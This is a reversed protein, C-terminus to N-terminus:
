GGVCNEDNNIICSACKLVNTKNDAAISVILKIIVFVFFVIVASILRKIFIQQGKRIEDEKSAIVAKVFDISGFVVLLIPVLIPLIKPMGTILNDGCSVVGDKDYNKVTNTGGILNKNVQNEQCKKDDLNDLFSVNGYEGICLDVAVKECNNSKCSESGSSTGFEYKGDNLKWCALHDMDTNLYLDLKRDAGLHMCAANVSALGTFTFISIFLVIILKRKKM